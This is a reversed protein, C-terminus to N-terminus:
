RSIMSVFHSVDLRIYCSLLIDNFGNLINFCKKLYHRLDICKTFVQSVAILIAWSFDCIVMRPPQNGVSIIKQLFYAIQMAKHDASVMQFVPISGFM